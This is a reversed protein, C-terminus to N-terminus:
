AAVKAHLALSYRQDLSDIVHMGEVLSCHFTHRVAKIAEIRGNNRFIDAFQDVAQRPTFTRKRLFVDVAAHMSEQALRLAFRAQEITVSDAYEFDINM